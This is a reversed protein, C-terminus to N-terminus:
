APPNARATLRGARAVSQLRREAERQAEQTVLSHSVYIYTSLTEILLLLGLSIGLAISLRFWLFKPKM